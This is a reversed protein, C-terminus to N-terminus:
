GGMAGNIALTYYIQIKNETYSRNINNYKECITYVVYVNQILKFTDFQYNYPGSIYYLSYILRSNM